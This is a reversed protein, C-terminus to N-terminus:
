YRVCQGWPGFEGDVLIKTGPPDKQHLFKYEISSVQKFLKKMEKDKMIRLQRCIIRIIDNLERDKAAVKCHEVIV